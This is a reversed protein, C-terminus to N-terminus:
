FVNIYRTKLDRQALMREIDEMRDGYNLVLRFPSPYEEYEDISEAALAVCHDCVDQYTHCCQEQGLSFNIRTKLEKIYQYAEPEPQLHGCACAPKESWEENWVTDICNSYLLHYINMGDGEQRFIHFLTLGKKVDQM